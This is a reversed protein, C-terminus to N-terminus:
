YEYNMVEPYPKKNVWVRLRKPTPLVGSKAIRLGHETSNPVTGYKKNWWEVARKQAFTKHELCIIEDYNKTGCRYSARMMPPSGNKEILSYLVFSCDLVQVDPPEAAGRMIETTGAQRMLEAGGIDFEGGCLCCFRASAHNYTKCKRGGVIRECLKIPADGGGKGPKRPLVPDNIPGLKLANGAFDLVLCNYKIYEFGRIYQDMLRGDYPRTGRGLMQVWLGPSLTARMMGIFDIPPHDFGTTLMGFNILWKFKAKKFDEILDDSEKKKSHVAVASQNMSTLVQAIHEAHEVGQAFVMCCHRDWAKEVMEACCAEVIENTDVADQAANQAYDGGSKGVGSMNFTTDTPQPILPAIFGESLLRNFGELTTLNYAVDTFLRGETLMGMKMRYLTATLGIVTLDPNVKRLETLFKVYSTSESDSVLHAEDIIIYDRHGFLEHKGVITQIGGFIIPQAYDRSNLGASCIGIPANSWEQALKNANQEILKKSHTLCMGRHWPYHRHIMQVLRTNVLGKGTGTPLGILPHRGRKDGAYYPGISEVAETQYWRDIAGM